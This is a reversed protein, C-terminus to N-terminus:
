REYAATAGTTNATSNANEDCDPSKSRSLPVAVLTRVVPVPAGTTTTTSSSNGVDDIRSASPWTSRPNNGLRASRASWEFQYRLLVATADIVSSATGAIM